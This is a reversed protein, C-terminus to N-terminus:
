DPPRQPAEEESVVEVGERKLLAATVGQGPVRQANEDTGTRKVYTRKCGCSPSNEKLIAHTAGAAQAIMLTENAGRVFQETVDRGQHDVVRARGELVDAGTGGVLDAPTRPTSLGGLQEPCVPIARGEAVLRAVREDRKNCGDHRCNAGALCASVIYIPEKM